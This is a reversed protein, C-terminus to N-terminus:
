VLFPPFYKLTSSSHYAMLCNHSKPSLYPFKLMNDNLVDCGGFASM